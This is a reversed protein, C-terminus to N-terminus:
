SDYDEAGGADDGASEEAEEFGLPLGAAGDTRALDIEGFGGRDRLEPGKELGAVGQDNAGNRSQSLFTVAGSKQPVDAHHIV